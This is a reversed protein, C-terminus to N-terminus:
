GVAAPRRESLRRLGEVQSSRVVDVVTIVDDGRRVLVRLDSGVRLSFVNDQDGKLQKLASGILSDWKTPLKEVAHLVRARERSALQDLYSEAAFDWDLKM